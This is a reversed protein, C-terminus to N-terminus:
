ICEHHVRIRFESIDLANRKTDGLRYQQVCFLRSLETYNELRFLERTLYSLPHFLM